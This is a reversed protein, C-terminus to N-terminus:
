RREHHSVPGNERPNGTEGAFTLLNNLLIGSRPDERDTAPLQCYVTVQGDKRVTCLYTFIYEEDEVVETVYSDVHTDDNKAKKVRIPAVKEVMNMMDYRGLSQLLPSGVACAVKKPSYSESLVQIDATWPLSKQRLFVATPKNKIGTLRHTIVNMSNPDTEQGIFVIAPTGFDRAAQFTADIAQVRLHGFLEQLQGSTDFVWIVKNTPVNPCSTAPPWLTLPRERAEIFEENMFLEARCRADTRGRVGPFTLELMAPTERTVPMITKRVLVNDVFISLKFTYDGEFTAKENLTMTMQMKGPTYISNRKLTMEFFSMQCPQSMLSHTVMCVVCAVLIATKM